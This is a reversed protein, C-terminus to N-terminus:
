KALIFLILFFSYKIQLNKPDIINQGEWILSCLDKIFGLRVHKKRVYYRSIYYCCIIQLPPDYFVSAPPPPSVSYIRNKTSISTIMVQIRSDEKGRASPDTGQVPLGDHGWLHCGRCGVCVSRDCVGAGFVVSRMVYQMETM